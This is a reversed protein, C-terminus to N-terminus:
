ASWSSVLDHLGLAWRLKTVQTRSIKAPSDFMTEMEHRRETATLQVVFRARRPHWVAAVAV